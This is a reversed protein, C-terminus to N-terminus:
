GSCGSTVRVFEIDSDVWDGDSHGYVTENGSVFGTVTVAPPVREDNEMVSLNYFFDELCDLLFFILFFIVNHSCLWGLSILM